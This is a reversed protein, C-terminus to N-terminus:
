CVLSSSAPQIALCVSRGEMKGASNFEGGRGLIGLQVGEERFTLGEDTLTSRPGHPVAVVAAAAANLKLRWCAAEAGRGPNLRPLLQRQHIALCDAHALERM